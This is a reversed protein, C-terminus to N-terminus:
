QGAWPKPTATSSPRWIFGAKRHRIYAIDGVMKQGPAEATFDRRVLDPIHHEQGDNETLSFRWPKPQCPGLGLERM